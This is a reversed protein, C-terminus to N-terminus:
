EDIKTFDAIMLLGEREWAKEYEEKLRPVSVDLRKLCDGLWKNLKKMIEEDKLIAQVFDRLMQTSLQKEQRTPSNNFDGVYYSKCVWQEDDFYIIAIENATEGGWQNQYFDWEFTYSNNEYGNSVIVPGNINNVQIEKRM